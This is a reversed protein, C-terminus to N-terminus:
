NGPVVFLFLLSGCFVQLHFHAVSTPINGSNVSPFLLQGAPKSPICISLSFLALHLLVDSFLSTLSLSPLSLFRISCLELHSVRSMAWGRDWRGLHWRNHPSISLECAWLWQLHSCKYWSAQLLIITQLTVMVTVSIRLNIKWKRKIVQFSVLIWICNYFFICISFEYLFYWM